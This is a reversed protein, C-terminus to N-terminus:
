GSSLGVNRRCFYLCAVVFSANVSISRVGEESFLLYLMALEFSTMAGVDFEPSCWVHTFPNVFYWLM